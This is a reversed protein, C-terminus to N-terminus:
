IYSFSGFVIAASPSLEYVPGWRHPEPTLPREPSLAAAPPTGGGGRGLGKPGAGAGGRGRGRGVFAGGRDGGRGAGKAPAKGLGKGLGRHTKQEAEDKEM